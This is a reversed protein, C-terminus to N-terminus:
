NMVALTVLRKAHFLDDHYRFAFNYFPSLVRISASVLWMRLEEETWASYVTQDEEFFYNEMLKNLGEPGKEEEELEVDPSLIGKAAL